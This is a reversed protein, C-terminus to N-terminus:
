EQHTKRTDLNSSSFKAIAASVLVALLLPAPRQWADPLVLFIAFFFGTFVTFFNYYKNGKFKHDFKDFM